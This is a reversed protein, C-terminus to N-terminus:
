PQKKPGDGGTDDLMGVLAALKLSYITWDTEAQVWALRQETVERQFNLVDLWAKYGAEYQRRYSALTAELDAISQDVNARLKQQQERQVWWSRVTKSLDNRTNEMSDQAATMRAQAAATRGQAVFGMGDLNGELVVGTRVPNVLTPQNLYRESQLYVTPMAARKAQEVDAQALEIVRTKYGVDASHALVQTELDALTPLVTLGQPVPHDAPVTKQTLAALEHLAVQLDGQMQEQQTLAQALRANALRVDVEAAMQGQARRKIQQHLEQLGTVNTKAVQLRQQVGRVRAYAVATQDLLQRKVRLLDAQEALVDADAYAIASDIRGFAWLPQRVRLTGTSGMNQISSTSGTLGPYRQARASEGLALKAQIDAQKTRLTPHHEIAAALAAPLGAIAQLESASAPSVGFLALLVHVCLPVTIKLGILRM